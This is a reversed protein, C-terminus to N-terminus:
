ENLNNIAFSIEKTKTKTLRAEIKNTLHVLNKTQDIRSVLKLNILWAKHSRFFRHDEGIQSAYFKLNRSSLIESGSVLHILCYSGKAELAVIEDYPILQKGSADSITLKKNLKFNSIMEKLNSLTRTSDIQRTSKQVSKELRKRDIPKLIYDLANMEFAKIAYSDYATVFIIQFNVEPFYDLIQLGSENPMQIDLFVLDPKNRRISDVASALNECKDIISISKESQVRMLLNALSDRAGAEDDVIIVKLQEHM